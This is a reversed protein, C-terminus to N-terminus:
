RGRAGWRWTRWTRAGPSAWTAAAREGPDRWLTTAGDPGVVVAASLTGEAAALPVTTGAALEDTELRMTGHVIKAGVEGRVAVSFFGGGAALATPTRTLHVAERQGATTVRLVEGGDPTAIAMWPSEDDAVLGVVATADQRLSLALSGGAGLERLVPTEGELGAVWVRGENTAVATARTMGALPDLVELRGSATVIQLGDPGTALARCADVATWTTVPGAPTPVAPRETAGEPVCAAAATLLDWGDLVPAVADVEPQLAVPQPRPTCASSVLVVPLVVLLSAIALRLRTRSM